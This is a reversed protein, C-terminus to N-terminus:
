AQSAALLLDYTAELVAYAATDVSVLRPFHFLPGYIQNLYKLIHWINNFLDIKIFCIVYIVDSYMLIFNSNAHYKSPSSIRIFYYYFPRGQTSFPKKKRKIKRHSNAAFSTDTESLFKECDDFNKEVLFFFSFQVDGGLITGPVEQMSALM